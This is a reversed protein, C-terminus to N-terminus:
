AEGGDREVARLAWGLRTCARDLVALTPTREGNLWRCLAAETAGIRAAFTALTEGRRTKEEWMQYIVPHVHAPPPSKRESIRPM